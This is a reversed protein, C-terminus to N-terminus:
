PWVLRRGTAKCAANRVAEHRDRKAVRALSAHAGGTIRGLAKAAARRVQWREHRLAGAMAAKAASPAEEGLAGLARSAVEVVQWRPHAVADVLSPAHLRRGAASRAILEAAALAVRRSWPALLQAVLSPPLETAGDPDLRGWAALVDRKAELGVARATSASCCQPDCKSSLPMSLVERLVARAERAEKKTLMGCLAGVRRATAERLALRESYGVEGADRAAAALIADILERTTM